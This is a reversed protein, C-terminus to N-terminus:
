CVRDNQMSYFRYTLYIYFTYQSPIPLSIIHYCAPRVWDMIIDWMYSYVSNITAMVVTLPALLPHVYGLSGLAALWIPPFSTFYKIINLTIPLKTRLDIACTLQVNCQRIRLRIFISLCCWCILFITSIM